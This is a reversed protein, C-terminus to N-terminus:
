IVEQPKTAIRATKQINKLDARILKGGINIYEADAQDLECKKCITSLNGVILDGRPKTLRFYRYAEVEPYGIGCSTCRIMKAKKPKGGRSKSAACEKCRNRRGHKSTKDIEFLELDDETIAVVGCDCVRLFASEKKYEM